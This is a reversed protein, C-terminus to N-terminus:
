IGDKHSPKQVQFGNKHRGRRKSEHGPLFMMNSTTSYTRMPIKARSIRTPTVASPNMFPGVVQSRIEAIFANSKNIMNVIM